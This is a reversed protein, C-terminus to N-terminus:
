ASTRFSMSSPCRSPEMVVSYPGSSASSIGSSVLRQSAGVTYGAVGSPISRLNRTMPSISEASPRGTMSSSISRRASSQKAFNQIDCATGLPCSQKVFYM